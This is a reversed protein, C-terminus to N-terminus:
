EFQYGIKFNIGSHLLQFGPLLGNWECVPNLSFVLHNKLVYEVGIGLTAGPAFCINNDFFGNSAKPAITLQLGGNLFFYKLFRYKAQAPITFSYFDSRYSYESVPPIAMVDTQMKERFVTLGTCFDFKESIQRQYDLGFSFYGKGSFGAEGEFSQFARFYDNSGFGINL